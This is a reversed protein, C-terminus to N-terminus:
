TGEDDVSGTQVNKQSICVVHIWMARKFANNVFM